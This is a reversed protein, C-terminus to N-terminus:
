GFNRLGLCDLSSPSICLFQSPIKKGQSLFFCKNQLPTGPTSWIIVPCVTTRSSRNQKDKCTTNMTSLQPKAWSQSILIKNSKSNFNQFHIKHFGWHHIYASMSEGYFVHLPSLKVIDCTMEGYWNRLWGSLLLCVRMRVCACVSSKQLM